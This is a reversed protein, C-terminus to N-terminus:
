EAGGGGAKREAPLASTLLPQRNEAPAGSGAGARLALVQGVVRKTVSARNPIEIEPHAHQACRLAGDVANWLAPYAAEHRHKRRRSM